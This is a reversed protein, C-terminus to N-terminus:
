RLCYRESMVEAVSRESVRALVRQILKETLSVLVVFLTKAHHPKDLLAPAAQIESLFHKVTNSRVALRPMAKGASGGTRGRCEFGFDHLQRIGDGVYVVIDVVSHPSMNNGFTVKRRIRHPMEAM